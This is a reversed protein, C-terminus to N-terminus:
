WPQIQFLVDWRKVWANMPAENLSWFEADADWPILGRTRTNSGVMIIKKM